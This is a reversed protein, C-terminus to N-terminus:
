KLGQKVFLITDVFPTQEVLNILEDVTCIYGTMNCVRNVYDPDNSVMRRMWQLIGAGAFEDINLCM